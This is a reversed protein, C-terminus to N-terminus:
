PATSSMAASRSARVKRAGASKGRPATVASMPTGNKRVRNRFSAEHAGCWRQSEIGHRHSIWSARACREIADRPRRACAPDCRDDTRIAAALACENAGQQAAYRENRPRHEHTFGVNRIDRLAIEGLQDGDDSLTFLRDQWQPDFLKDSESTMRMARCEACHASRITTGYRTCDLPGTNGIRSIPAGVFKGAAFPLSHADRARQRLLSRQQHEILRGCKEIDRMLHGDEFQEIRQRSFPARHQQDTVLEIEDRAKSGM